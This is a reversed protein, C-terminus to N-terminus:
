KEIADQVFEHAKTFGGGRVLLIYAGNIGTTPYLINSPSMVNDARIEYSSFEKMYGVLELLEMDTETGGSIAQYMDRITGFDQLVDLNVIRAHIAQVIQQQRAARDFDSTSKRSRAYRLADRGSLHHAGAKIAYPEYGGNWNPFLPDYIDKKVYVDVGGLADIIKEFSAFDVVAHRHIELGTAKTVMQRLEDIGYLSLYGNIKRGNVVLDRPISILTTKKRVKDFAAIIITDALRSHHGVLLINFTELRVAGDAELKRRVVKTPAEQQEPSRSLVLGKKLDQLAQNTEQLKQHLQLNEQKTEGIEQFLVTAKSRYAVLESELAKTDQVLNFFFFAAVLAIGGLVADILLQKKM